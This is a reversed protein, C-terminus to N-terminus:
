QTSSISTNNEAMWGHALIRAMDEPKNQSIKIQVHDLLLKEAENIMLAFDTQYGIRSLM